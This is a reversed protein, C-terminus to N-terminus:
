AYLLNTLKWLSSHAVQKWYPSCIVLSVRSIRALWYKVHRFLYLSVWLLSKVVESCKLSKVLCITWNAAKQKWCFKSSSPSTFFTTSEAWVWKALRGMKQELISTLIMDRNALAFIVLMTLSRLESNFFILFPLFTCFLLAGSFWFSLFSDWRQSKSEGGALTKYRKESATWFLQATCVTLRLRMQEDFLERSKSHPASRTTQPALRFINIFGRLRKQIKCETVWGQVACFTITCRTGKTICDFTISYLM